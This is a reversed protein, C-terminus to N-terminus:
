QYYYEPIEVQDVVENMSEPDYYEEQPVEQQEAMPPQMGTDERPMNKNVLEDARPDDAPKYGLIARVENSSLIENRTFRDAIDALNRFISSRSLSGISIASGIRFGPCERSYERSVQM